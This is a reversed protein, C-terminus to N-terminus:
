TKRNESNQLKSCVLSCFLGKTRQDTTPGHATTEQLFIDLRSAVTDYICGGALLTLRKSYNPFNVSYHSDVENKINAFILAMCYFIYLSQQFFPALSLELSVCLFGGEGEGVGGGGEEGGLFFFVNELM